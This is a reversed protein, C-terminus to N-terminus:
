IREFHVGIGNGDARIGSACHRLSVHRRPLVLPRVTSNILCNEVFNSVVSLSRQKPERRASAFFRMTPM